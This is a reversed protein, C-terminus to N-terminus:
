SAPRSQFAAYRANWADRTDIARGNRREDAYFGAILEVRRDTLSVAACFEDLTETAEVSVPEPTEM